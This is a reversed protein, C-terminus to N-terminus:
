NCNGDKKVTAITVEQATNMQIHAVHLLITNKQRQRKKAMQFIILDAFSKAVNGAGPVVVDRVLLL